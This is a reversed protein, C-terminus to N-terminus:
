STARPRPPQSRDGSPRAALDALLASHRARHLNYPWLFALGCLLIALMAPGYAIGLRVLAEHPVAAPDAKAPFRILDIVVGAVAGGFGLSTKRCFANVGFFVGEAREGHAHEHEDALDALMAASLVVPITGVLGFGFQTAVLAWLVFPSGNPPFLGLLRLIVPICVVLCALAVGAVYAPKKDLKVALPRAFPIGVIFGVVSAYFFLQAQGPALGWFFTNMHLALAGQVGNFAYMILLAIFLARFSTSGMAARFVRWAGRPRGARAVHDLRLAARQTGLASGIVVLVVLAGCALAFPPYAAPNLQGNHHEPTARFFVMFALALAAIRGLYSFLVRWGGVSVREAFDTSLEAGLAMHPVFYFTMAVRAAIAFACLWAFLGAGALGAPPSFLLAVAVALPIPAAYLFPHRRGLRTRTRDSWAGVWPDVLGDVLQAVFLAAGTLSGSLGVVQVYFFFLFTELAATKVGEGAEGLGYALKTLWPLRRGEVLPTSAAEDSV